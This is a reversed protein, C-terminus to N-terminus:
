NTRKMKLWLSVVKKLCLMSRVWWTRDSIPYIIGADLLKM